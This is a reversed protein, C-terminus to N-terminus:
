GICGETKYRVWFSKNKEGMGPIDLDGILWLNCQVTLSRRVRGLGQVFGALADSDVFSRILGSRMGLHESLAGIVLLVM